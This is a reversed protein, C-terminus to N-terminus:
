IINFNSKKIFRLIYEIDWTKKKLKKIENESFWGLGQGENLKELTIEDNTCVLFFINLIGSDINLHKDLRKITNCNISLEEKLERRICDEPAEKEDALGGFLGWHGPSYINKKEDRHQLLFKKKKLLIAKTAIQMKSRKQAIM